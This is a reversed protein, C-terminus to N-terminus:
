VEVEFMFNLSGGIVEVEFKLNLSWIWVEDEVTVEFNFQLCWSLVLVKFVLM